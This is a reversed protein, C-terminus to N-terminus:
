LMRRLGKPYKNKIIGNACKGFGLSHNKYTILYYGNELDKKLELGSIYKVYEGENLDYTNKYKGILSNARFLSHSPEFRKNKIEGAYIGYRLVNNRLDPLPILSLYYKNKYNYLYYDDISLNDSIFDDVLKEKIPKLYNISNNYNNNGDKKLICIFQGETNDLPSLKITNKLTSNGIDPITKIHMDPHRDLFSNIQDEDEEFSYTCTSYVLQGGEKLIQYAYELLEKQLDALEYIRELSYEDSIEPYKRIIGEGSCPADLIVIDAWNNLEEALNNITKNTVIVNDLGLREINSSLISARTHNIENSICIVDKDLRNLINITKGGPSACLDVVTKVNNKDIYKTSLSAAIEQPYILGLEYAKTKGISDNHHYFSEDTLPSAEYKFDLLKLIEDKDAKNTNLFFGQTPNDNLKNLFDSANDKFYEKVRKIFLENM